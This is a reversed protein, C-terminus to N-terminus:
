KIEPPPAEPAAYPNVQAVASRSTASLLLVVAPAAIAVRGSTRLFKRRASVGEIQEGTAPAGCGNHQDNM